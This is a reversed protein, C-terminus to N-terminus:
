LWVKCIHAFVICYYCCVSQFFIGNSSGDSDKSDDAIYFTSYFTCISIILSEFSVLFIMKHRERHDKILLGEFYLKPYMWIKKENIRSFIMIFYVEVFFSFYFFYLFILLSDYFGNGSFNDYFNYLFLHIGILLSKFLCYLMCNKGKESFVLGKKMMLDKLQGLNSIKIDGAVINSKKNKVIEVGIDAAELMLIDNFGDGISMVTPNKPFDRKIMLTLEKKNNPSLNYGILTKAFFTIFIFHQKLYPDNFIIDLSKGDVLFYHNNLEMIKSGNDLKVTQKKVNKRLNKRPTTTRTAILDKKFLALINRICIILDEKLLTDIALVHMKPNILNISYAVNLANEKCDGTLIWPIVSIEKFYSILGMSEPRTKEKIGVICVLQLHNEYEEALSELHDDQNILSSKLNFIRKQYSEVADKSLRKRAYILPTLGDYHFAKIVINIKERDSESLLLKHNIRQETGKCVLYNECNKQSNSYVLSFLGRNNYYDNIGIIPFIKFESPYKAFYHDPNELKNAKEFIFGFNQCFNLIIEEDRQKSDYEFKNLNSNFTANSYHCLTLSEFLNDFTPAFEEILDKNNIVDYCFEDINYIHDIEFKDTDLRNLKQNFLLLPSMTETSGKTHDEYTECINLPTAKTIFQFDSNDTAQELNKVSEDRFFRYLGERKTTWGGMNRELDETHNSDFILDFENDYINNAKKERFKIIKPRIEILKTEIDNISSFDYIKGNFFIKSLFSSKETLTGTKDILAYQVHSIETFVNPDTLHFYDIPHEHKIQKELSFKTYLIFTDWLVYFNLPLIPTLM